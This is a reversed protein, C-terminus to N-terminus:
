DGCLSDLHFPLFHSLPQCIFWQRFYPLYCVVFSMEQALSCCGFDFPEAFNFFLCPVMVVHQCCPAPQHIVSRAESFPLLAFFGGPFLCLLFEVGFCSLQHIIFSIEQVQSCCAFKFQWVESLSYSVLCTDSFSLLFFFSGV